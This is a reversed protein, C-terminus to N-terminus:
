QKGPRKHAIPDDGNKYDVPHTGGPAINAKGTQNSGSRSNNSGTAAGSSTQDHDRLNSGDQEYLPNTGNSGSEKYRPNSQTGNTKANAMKAADKSAGDLPAIKASSTSSDKGTKNVGSQRDASPPNVLVPEKSKAAKDVNTKAAVDASGSKNPSKALQASIAVGALLAVALTASLNVGAFARM